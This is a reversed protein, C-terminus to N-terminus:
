EERAEGRPFRRLRRYGHLTGKPDLRVEYAPPEEFARKSVTTGFLGIEGLDRVLSGAGGDDVGGLGAARRLRM